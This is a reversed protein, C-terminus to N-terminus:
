IIFLDAIVQDAFLKGKNTLHWHGKDEFIKKNEFHVLGAKKIHDFASSGYNEKIFRLDCGKWTRLGTMVYENLKENLSLIEKECPIKNAKISRIYAHNDSINWMRCEEGSANKFYSHASPGIGFYDEGTWYSSNHNSRYGPKSFSSIEYHEYGNSKLTEILLNFQDVIMDEDPIKSKGTRINKELVTYPEITLQYVSMHPVNLSIGLKLNKTWSEIDSGPIGYILDISINKRGSDQLLKVSDISQKASHKRNMWKLEDDYFSQVGVSYRNVGIENWFRVNKENVDEPNIELTFEINDSLQYQKSITTKIKNFHEENLLSPTGGGFYLSSVTKGKIKDSRLKLEDCLALIMEDM